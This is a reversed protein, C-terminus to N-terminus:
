PCGGGWRYSRLLFGGALLLGTLVALGATLLWVQVRQWLTLKVTPPYKM